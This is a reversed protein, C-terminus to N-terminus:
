PDATLSHTQVNRQILWSICHFLLAEGGSRSCAKNAPSPSISLFNNNKEKKKAKERALGWLIILLLSTCTTYLLLTTEVQVCARFAKGGQGSPVVTLLEALLEHM